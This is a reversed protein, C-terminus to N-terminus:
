STEWEVPRDPLYRFSNGEAKIFSKFHTYLEKHEILSNRCRNIAASVAKRDTDADNYLKRSRGTRDTVSNVHKEIFDLLNMQDIREDPGSFDGAERREILEDRLRKLKQLPLQRIVDEHAIDEAYRLNEGELQEHTMAAYPKHKQEGTDDASLRKLESCHVWEGTHLILNRIHCLGVSPKISYSKGGYKIEWGPGAKRFVNASQQQDHVASSDSGSEAPSGDRTRIGAGNIVEFEFRRPNGGSRRLRIRTGAPIVEGSESGARWTSQGFQIIGTKAANDIAEVVVGEDSSLQRLTANQPYGASFRENFRHELVILILSLNIFVIVQAPTQVDILALIGAAAGGFSFWLFISRPRLIEGILFLAAFSM